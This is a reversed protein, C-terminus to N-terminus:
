YDLQTPNVIVVANENLFSGYGIQELGEEILSKAENLTDIAEKRQDIAASVRSNFDVRYQYPLCPIKLSLLDKRKLNGQDFKGIQELTAEHRLVMTWYYPTSGFELATFSKTILEGEYFEPVVIVRHKKTGLHTGTNAILVDGPKIPQKVMPPLNGVKGEQWTEVICFEESIDDTQAYLVFQNQPFNSLTATIVKAFQNVPKLLNSREKELRGDIEKKLANKTSMFIEKAERNMQIAAKLLLEIKDKTPNPLFPVALNKLAKNNIRSINTNYRLKKLARQGPDSNLFCCLVESKYPAKQDLRIRILDTSYIYDSTEETIIAARTPMVKSVLIDGKELRHKDPLSPSDEPSYILKNKSIFFDKINRGRLVPAGQADEKWDKRYYAGNTTKANESLFTAETSNILQRYLNYEVDMRLEGDLPIGSGHSIVEDKGSLASSVREIAEESDTRGMLAKYSEGKQCKKMAIFSSKLRSPNLSQKFSVVAKLQFRSLMWKRIKQRSPANLMMNPSLFFLWGGDKLIQHAHALWVVELRSRKPVEYKELKKDEVRVGFPPLILILDFCEELPLDLINNHVEVKQETAELSDKIPIRSILARNWRRTPIIRLLLDKLEKPIYYEGTRKREDESYKKSHNRVLKGGLM